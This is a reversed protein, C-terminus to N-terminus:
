KYAFGALDAFGAYGAFGALDASDPLDPLDPTPIEQIRFVIGITLSRVLTYRTLSFTM